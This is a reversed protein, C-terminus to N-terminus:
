GTQKRYTAPTCGFHKSFAYHLHSSSAFGAQQAIAELSSQTALLQHAVLSLRARMQFKAFSMGMTQRFLLSFHSRSLGCKEAAQHLHVHKGVGDHLLQLAPMIRSLYASRASKPALVPTPPDWERRLALLVRLLNLRLATEWGVRADRIEREIEWGISSMYERTEPSNVRPRREPAAAFLILWPDGGLREDALFGPLFFVVVDRTEPAVARWGHPEWMGCLWVDGPKAIFMFDGLRREMAGALLIGVEIGEHVDLELATPSAHKSATANVPSEASLHSDYRRAPYVWDLDFHEPEHLPAM